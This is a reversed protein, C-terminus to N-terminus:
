DRKKLVLLCLGTANCANFDGYKINKLFDPAVREWKRWKWCYYEENLISLGSKDIISRILKSDYELFPVPREHRHRFIFPYRAGGYYAFKKGYPVSIFLLGNNNLLNAMTRLAVIQLNKFNERKSGYGGLGIHELVSICIIADFAVDTKIENIKGVFVGKLSLTDGINRIDNGYVECGISKLDDLYKSGVCGVDLVKMQKKELKNINQLMWPVEVCREDAVM